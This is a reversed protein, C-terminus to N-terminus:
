VGRNVEQIPTVKELNPIYSYRVPKTERFSAKADEFFPIIHKVSNLKNDKRNLDDNRSITFINPVPKEDTCQQLVINGSIIRGTNTEYNLYQGLFFNGTTGDDTGDVFLKLNLQRQEPLKGKVVTKLNIVLVQQTSSTFDTEGSYDYHNENETNEIYVYLLERKRDDKKFDLVLQALNWSENNNPQGLDPYAYFYLYWKSGALAYRFNRVLEEVNWKTIEEKKSTKGRKLKQRIKKIQPDIIHEPIPQKKIYDILFPIFNQRKEDGKTPSYGLRTFVQSLEYDSVEAISVMPKEYKDHIHKYFYLSNVKFFDYCPSKSKPFNLGDKEGAPIYGIDWFSPSFIDLDDEWYSGAEFSTKNEIIKGKALIKDQNSLIKQKRDKLVEIYEQELYKKFAEAADIIIITFLDEYIPINM